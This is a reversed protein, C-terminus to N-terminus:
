TQIHGQADGQLLRVAHPLIPAVAELCDTVGGPSGPLNVILTSGRVGAVARSLAAHPTKSLSVSRMLEGIGPVLRECVESTAEPTVDRAAVGTGGTTVILQVGETCLSVLVDSILSQEDAVVRQSHIEAGLGSLLKVAAPGSADNAKGASVSDSVTVVAALAGELGRSM